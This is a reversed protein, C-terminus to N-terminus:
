SMDVCTPEQGNAPLNIKCADAEHDATNDLSKDSEVDRVVDPMIVM